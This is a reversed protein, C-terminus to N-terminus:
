GRTRGGARATLAQYEQAIFIADQLAMNIGPSQFFGVIKGARSAAEDIDGFMGLVEDYDLELVLALRRLADDYRARLLDPTTMTVEGSQERGAPDIQRVIPM